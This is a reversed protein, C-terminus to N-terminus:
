VELTRYWRNSGGLLGTLQLEPRKRYKKVSHGRYLSFYVTTALREKLNKLSVDQLTNSIFHRELNEGKQQCLSEHCYLCIHKNKQLPDILLFM